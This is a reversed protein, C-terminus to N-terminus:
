GCCPLLGSHGWTVSPTRRQPSYFCSPACPVGNYALPLLPACIPFLSGFSPPLSLAAAGFFSPFPPPASAPPCPSPPWVVAFPPPPLPASGALFFGPRLLIGVRVWSLPRGLLIGRVGGGSSSRSRPDSSLTRQEMLSIAGISAQTRRSSLSCSSYPAVPAGSVAAAQVSLSVGVGTPVPRLVTTETTACYYYRAVTSEFYGKVGKKSSSQPGRLTAHSAREQSCAVLKPQHNHSEGDSILRTM